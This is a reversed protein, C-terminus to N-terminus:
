AGKLKKLVWNNEDVAVRVPQKAVTFTFTQNRADNRVVRTESGGDAYHITVDLPMIYVQSLEQARGPIAHTQKQKITLRIDYEGASNGPTIRSSVKYIPRGPAYVWQQFFWDLPEGYHSECVQRFDETSANAYAHNRAYEKLAAFFAEDGMIHRLMHLVWAGKTYIAGTDDFPNNLNEAYVTGGLRGFVKHDDYSQSMIRGPALNYFREFFLTESYTAFGENL